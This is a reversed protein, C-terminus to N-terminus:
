EDGMALTIYQVRFCNDATNQIIVPATGVASAYSVSSIYGAPVSDLLVTGDNQNLRTFVTTGPIYLYGSGSVVSDIFLVRISLHIQLHDM